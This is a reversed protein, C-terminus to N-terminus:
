SHDDGRHILNHTPFNLSKGQCQVEVEKSNGIRCHTPVLCLSNLTLEM